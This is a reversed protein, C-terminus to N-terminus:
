LHHAIAKGSLLGPVKCIGQGVDITQRFQRSNCQSVGKARKTTDAGLSSRPDRSVPAIGIVDRNQIDVDAPRALAGTDERRATIRLPM